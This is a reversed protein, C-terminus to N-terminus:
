AAGILASGIVDASCSVERVSGDFCVVVRDALELLEDIDPSYVVVVSGAARAKRMRDFVASAARVDLGRAPNEAVLLPTTGDLERALVFKQQNGGSLAAAATRAGGGRVDYQAIAVDARSQIDRWHMVGRRAGAGRLAFNETLSLEGILADRLRDEPVFGITDPIAVSGRSPALRGSIVRLLERQGSGEVGAVGLIEGPRVTLSVNRLRTVGTADDVCVDNLIIGRSAARALSSGAVPSSATHAGFGGLVADVLASETADRAATALVTRGHRLVTIVDGYELAERMRHTIVVAAHGLSVFKRLWVFLDRADAPSLAATPEDLFLVRPEHSIAKIIEARQQAAVSLTGVEAAPNVDLGVAAAINAVRNAAEIPSFRRALRRGALVVNETVTMSPVLSMHQHVASLGAASAAAYSAWSVSTGDVLIEGSDPDRLGVAVQLLTTKGAGNEGLLVHLTGSHVTLAAGDLAMDDGYWKGIARLEVVPPHATM